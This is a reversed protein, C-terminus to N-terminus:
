EKTAASIKYSGCATELAIRLEILQSKRQLLEIRQESLKNWAAYYSFIDAQGSGVERSYNEVLRELSPISERTGEILGNVAKINSVLRVIDARAQFLRNMYEDFLFRRTAREVAIQGQNRNFLPLDISVGFGRTYLDSTDRGKSFGISINPFQELIARRVLAERSDYGRRLAILDLRRNSIGKFLIAPDAPALKDPLPVRQLKLGVDPSFGMLRKLKLDNRRVKRNMELSRKHAEFYASEAASERMSTALGENLAEQVLRYNEELRQEVAHALSDERLLALQDYDTLRTEQAVQWERWAVSLDVARRNARAAEVTAKRTILARLDFSLDIGHASSTGATRGHTPTVATYSIRPNPLIGAELLQATAMRLRDREARLAPNALVAVVAAEEPSLGDRYDITLPKLIPHHISAAEVRIDKLSPTSLSRDISSGNIPLPHYTACGVLWLVCGSALLVRGILDM